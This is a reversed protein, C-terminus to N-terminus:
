PWQYSYRSYCYSLKGGLRYFEKAADEVTELAKRKLGYVDKLYALLSDVGECLWAWWRERADDDEDGLRALQSQLNERASGSAAEDFPLSLEKIKDLLM